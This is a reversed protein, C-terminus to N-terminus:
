ETSPLESWGLLRRYQNMTKLQEASLNERHFPWYDPQEEPMKLLDSESALWKILRDLDSSHDTGEPRITRPDYEDFLFGYGADFAVVQFLDNMLSCASNLDALTVPDISASKGGAGAVRKVHAVLKDRYDKLKALVSDPNHRTRVADLTTRFARQEDESAIGSEVTKAFRELTLTGKTRDTLLRNLGLVVAEYAASIILSWCTHDMPRLLEFPFSALKSLVHLSNNKWVVQHYLAQLEREYVPRFDARLIESSFKPDEREM